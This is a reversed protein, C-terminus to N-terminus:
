IIEETAIQRIFSTHGHQFGREHYETIEGEFLNLRSLLTNSLIKYETPLLQIEQYNRCDPIDGKTHIASYYILEVASTGTGQEM